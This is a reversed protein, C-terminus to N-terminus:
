SQKNERLLILSILIDIAMFASLALISSQISNYQSLIGVIYTVIAGGLGTAVNVLGSATATRTGAFDMVRNLVCPYIAGSCAGLPICLLVCLLGSGSMAILFAFLATGAAAILLLIKNWKSLIGMLIRSPIMALWFLSIAYYSYKFNLDEYIYSNIFYAFGNEFGVYVFMILCLLLIGKIYFINKKNSPMNDSDNQRINNSSYSAKDNMKEFNNIDDVREKVEFSEKMSPFFELVGAAFVVFFLVKYSIGRELYFSCMIPAIVAGLAYFSTLIGIKKKGTVPYVDAVTAIATYQLTGDCIGVLFIGLLFMHIENFVLIILTAVAELLLFACFFPKKGKKDSLPGFILPSIFGAALQISAFAGMTILSLDYTKGIAMLSAQYGGAQFGNIFVALYLLFILM